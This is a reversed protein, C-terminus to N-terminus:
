YVTFGSFLVSDSKGDLDIFVTMDWGGAMIYNVMGRYVGDATYVPAEFPTSHGEGAGMDMYPYLNLSASSVPLWSDSGLRHIALDYPAEGTEPRQPQVWSVYYASDVVQVWIDEVVQVPIRKTGSSGGISFGVDLNWSGDEGIPELLHILIEFQDDDNTSSASGEGYPPPLERAGTVWVASVDVNGSLIPMGDNSEAEVLIRNPGWHLGTEALLTFSLGSQEFQGVTVLEDGPLDGEPHRSYFDTETIDPACGGLSFLLVIHLIRCRM